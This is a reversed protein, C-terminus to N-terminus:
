YKKWKMLHGFSFIGVKEMQLSLLLHSTKQLRRKLYFPVCKFANIQIIRESNM